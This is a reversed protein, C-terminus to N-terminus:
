KRKNPDVFPVWEDTIPAAQVEEIAIAQAVVGDITLPFLGFPVKSMYGSRTPWPYCGLAPQGTSWAQHYADLLIRNAGYQDTEIFEDISRGALPFGNWDDAATGSLRYRVQFPDHLFEVIYVHPLLPKIAAPDIQARSPTAGGNLTRWYRLLEGIMGQLSDGGSM